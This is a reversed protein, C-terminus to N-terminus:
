NEASNIKKLLDLSNSYEGSKIKRYNKDYLIFSGAGKCDKLISVLYEGNVMLTDKSFLQKNVFNVHVEEWIIDISCKKNEVKIFSNKCSFLLASLIIISNLLKIKLKQERKHEQQLM